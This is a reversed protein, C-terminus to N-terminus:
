CAVFSKFINIGWLFEGIKRVQMVPERHAACARVAIVITVQNPYPTVVLITELSPVYVKCYRLALRHWWKLLNTTRLLVNATM